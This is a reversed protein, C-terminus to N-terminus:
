TTGAFIPRPDRMFQVSVYGSPLYAILGTPRRGMWETLAEGNPRITELSVLRWTGILAARDSNSLSSPAQSGAPGSLAVATLVILCAFCRM